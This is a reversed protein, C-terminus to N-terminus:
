LPPHKSMARMNRQTRRLAAWVGSSPTHLSEPMPGLSIEFCRTTDNGPFQSSPSRIPVAHVQARFKLSLGLLSLLWHSLLFMAAKEWADPCTRSRFRQSLVKNSGIEWGNVRHTGRSVCVLFNGTMEWERVLM